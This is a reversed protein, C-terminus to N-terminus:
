LAAARLWARRDWLTYVPWGSAGVCDVVTPAFRVSAAVRVPTDVTYQLHIVAAFPVVAKQLSFPGLPLGPPAEPPDVRTSLSFKDCVALLGGAVVCYSLFGNSGLLVLVRQLVWKNFLNKERILLQKRILRWLIRSNFYRWTQVM